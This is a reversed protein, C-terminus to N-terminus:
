FPFFTFFMQMLGGPAIQVKCGTKMQLRTIQEGGKGIVTLSLSYVNIGYPGLFTYDFGKSVTVIDLYVLVLWM